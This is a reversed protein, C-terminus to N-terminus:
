NLGKAFLNFIFPATRLGFPLYREMSYIGDWNFEPLWLNSKAVLINCFAEALDQKVLICGRGMDLILNIAKDVSTYELARETSSQYTPTLLNAEQTHSIIYEFGDVM